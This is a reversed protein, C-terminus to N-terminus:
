SAWCELLNGSTATIDGYGTTFLTVVAWYWSYTYKEWIEMDDVDSKDTVTLWSNIWSDVDDTWTHYGIYFWICAALHTVLVMLMFVKIFKLALLYTRDVSKMTLM